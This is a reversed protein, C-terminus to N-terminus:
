GFGVVDLLFRELDRRRDVDRRLDAIDGLRAAEVAHRFGSAPFHGFFQLHGFAGFADGRLRDLHGGGLREAHPELIEHQRRRVGHERDVLDDRVGGLEIADEAVLGVIGAGAEDLQGVDARQLVVGLQNVDGGVAGQGAPPGTLSASRM